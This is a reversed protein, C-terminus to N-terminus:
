PTCPMRWRLQHLGYNESAALLPPEVRAIEDLLAVDEGLEVVARISGLDLPGLAVEGLPLSVKLEGLLLYLDELRLGLELLGPRVHQPLLDVHVAEDGEDGGIGGRLLAEVVRPLEQGGGLRIDLSSPDVELLGLDRGPRLDVRPLARDLGGLGGEGLGLQVHGVGGDPGLDAPADAVGGHLHSAEGGAGRRLRQRRDNREVRDRHAEVDALDLVQLEDLAPARALRPPLDRELEDEGVPADKGPFAPDLPDEVLHVGPRAGQLELSIERVGVPQDQGALEPPDARAHALLLACQEQRLLGDDLELARLTITTPGSFLTAWRVTVIPSRMPSSQIALWPRLGPSRTTTSPRWFARGPVTTFACSTESGATLSSGGPGNKLVGAPVRAAVGVAAPEV